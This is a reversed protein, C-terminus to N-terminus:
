VGFAKRPQEVVSGGQRFRVGLKRRTPWSDILLVAECLLRSLSRLIFGEGCTHNRQQILPSIKKRAAFLLWSFFAIARRCRALGDKRSSTVGARSNRRSAARRIAGRLFCFCSCESKRWVSKHLRVPKMTMLFASVLRESSLFDRRCMM